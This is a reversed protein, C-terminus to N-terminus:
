SWFINQAEFHRKSKRANIVFESCHASEIFPENSLKWDWRQIDNDLEFVGKFFRVDEETFWHKWQEIQTARKGYRHREPIVYNRNLEIGLYNELAAFQGAILREYTMVFATPLHCRVRNLASQSDRLVQTLQEQTLGPNLDIVLQKFSYHSPQSEKQHLCELARQFESDNRGHLGFLLSSIVRDRPDRTLCIHKSFREFSTADVQSDHTDLVIKAVVNGVLESEPPCSKPEFFNTCGELSECLMYNLLTSGSRSLSYIAISTM